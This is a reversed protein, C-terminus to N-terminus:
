LPQRVGLLWTMKDVQIDQAQEMTSTKQYTHVCLVSINVGCAGEWLNLGVIEGWVRRRGSGGLQQGVLGLVDSGM